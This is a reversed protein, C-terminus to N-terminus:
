LSDDCQSLVRLLVLLISDHKPLARAHVKQRLIDDATSSPLTAFFARIRLSVDNITMPQLLEQHLNVLPPCTHATECRYAMCTWRDAKWCRGSVYHIVDPRESSDLAEERDFRSVPVSLVDLYELEPRMTRAIEEADYEAHGTIWVPEHQGGGVKASCNPELFWRLHSGHQEPSVCGTDAASSAYQSASLDVRGPLVGRLAWGKVGLAPLTIKYFHHEPNVKAYNLTSHQSPIGAANLTAAVYGMQEQNVPIGDRVYPAALVQLENRWPDSEPTPFLILPPHAQPNPRLQM